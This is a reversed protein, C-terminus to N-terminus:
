LGVIDFTAKREQYYDNYQDYGARVIRTLRNSLPDEAIRVETDINQCVAEFKKAINKIARLTERDPAADAAKGLAKWTQGIHNITDQKINM